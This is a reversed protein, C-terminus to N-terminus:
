QFNTKENKVPSQQREPLFNKEQWIRETIGIKELKINFILHGSLNYRGYKGQKFHWDLRLPTLICLTWLRLCIQTNYCASEEPWWMSEYGLLGLQIIHAWALKQERTHVVPLIRNNELYRKDAKVKTQGVEDWIDNM